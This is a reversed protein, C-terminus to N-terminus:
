GREEKDGHRRVEELLRRHSEAEDISGRGPHGWRRLAWPCLVVVIGLVCVAIILKDM